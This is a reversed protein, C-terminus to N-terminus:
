AELGLLMHLGRSHEIYEARYVDGRWCDQNEFLWIAALASEDRDMSRWRIPGALGGENEPSEQYLLFYLLTLVILVYLNIHLLKGKINIGLKLSPFLLSLLYLFFLEKKNLDKALM